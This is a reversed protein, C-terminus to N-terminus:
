EINSLEWILCFIHVTAQQKRTYWLSLYFLVGPYLGAEAVGLFFRAALMQQGTHVISM